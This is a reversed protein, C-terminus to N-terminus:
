NNGHQRAVDDPAYNHDIAAAAIAGRFYRAAGAGLHDVHAATIAAGAKGARQRSIHAVDDHEHLAVAGVVRGGNASITLAM